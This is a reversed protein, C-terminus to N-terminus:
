CCVNRFLLCGCKCESILKRIHEGNLHRWEQKSACQIEVYGLVEAAELLRKERDVTIFTGQKPNRLVVEDYGDALSPSQQLSAM